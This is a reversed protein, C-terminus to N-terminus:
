HVTIRFVHGTGDYISGTHVYQPIVTDVTKGDADKYTAIIETYYDSHMHGCFVAKVIDANSILTDYVALTNADSQPRGAFRDRYNYNYPDNRRIPPWDAEKPNRTCLPEHVFILVILGNDRAKQIDAKFPAIQSEWFRSAGNDMVIALVKDKLVRSVYTIDHPWFNDLLQRRSAYSTPDGVKGQMVRTTDHGGLCALLNVDKRFLNEVTLQQCGWSLYDLVDGAIITQDSYRAFDMCRGIVGVSAGNRLWLRYQRTSMISPNQEEEDRKNVYNYHTDNLMVIEVPPTNTKKSQIHAERIFTGNSYRGIWTNLDDPSGKITEPTDQPRAAQRIGNLLAAISPDSPEVLAAKKFLNVAAAHTLLTSDNACLSKFREEFDVPKTPDPGRFRRIIDEAEDTSLPTEPRFLGDQPAAVYGNAVAHYIARDHPHNYDIDAFANHKGLSDITTSLNAVIRIIDDTTPAHYFSLVEINYILQLLEARTAAADPLNEGNRRFKRLLGAKDFEDFINGELSIPLKAAAALRKLLELRTITNMTSRKNPIFIVIPMVYGRPHNKRITKM